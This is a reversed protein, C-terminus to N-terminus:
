QWEVRYDKTIRIKKNDYIEELDRISYWSVEFLEPMYLQKRVAEAAAETPYLQNEYVPECELDDVYDLAWYKTM